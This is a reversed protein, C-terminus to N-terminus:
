QYFKITTILNMFLKRNAKKLEKDTYFIFVYTEEQNKEVILKLQYYDGKTSEFTFGERGDLSIRTQNKYKEEKAIKIEEKLTKEEIQFIVGDDWRNLSQKSGFSMIYILSDWNWYEPYKFSFRSDKFETFLDKKDIICGQSSNGYYVDFDAVGLKNNEGQITEKISQRINSMPLLLSSTITIVVILVIALIAIRDKNM